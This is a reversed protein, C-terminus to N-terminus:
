INYIKNQRVLNETSFLNKKKVLVSTHIVEMKERGTDRRTKNM